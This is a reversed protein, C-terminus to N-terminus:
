IGCSCFGWRDTGKKLHNTTM